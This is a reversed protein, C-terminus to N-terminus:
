EFLAFRNWRVSAARQEGATREGNEEGSWERFRELILDADYGTAQAYQRIYSTSFVGGPLEGYKGDEIAELFRRSIKTAEAIDEIRVGARLRHERLPLIPRSAQRSKDPSGTAKGTVVEQELLLGLM